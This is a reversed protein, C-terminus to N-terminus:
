KPKHSHPPIINFFHPTERGVVNWTLIRTMGICVVVYGLLDTRGPDCEVRYDEVGQSWGNSTGKQILDLYHKVQKIGKEKMDQISTECWGLTNGNKDNQRYKVKLCLLDEESM